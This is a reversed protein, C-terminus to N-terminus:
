TVSNLHRIVIVFRGTSEGSKAIWEENQFSGVRPHMIYGQFYGPIMPRVGARRLINWPGGVALIYKQLKDKHFICKGPKDRPAIVEVQKM